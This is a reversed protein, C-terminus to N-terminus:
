RTAESDWAAATLGRERVKAKEVRESPTKPLQDVVEIFRPVAFRPLSARLFEHLELPALVSRPRPVVLLAVDEEGLPSAVGFAAAELVDAHRTAAQEVEWASVNEGRRRIADKKRGVFEYDGNDAQRVLDGTRLWSGHWAAETAEPKRWYGAMTVHPELPACLLEGTEGSVVDEGGDDVVKVDFCPTARGISGPRAGHELTWTVCGTETQGYWQHVELGFRQEFSRHIEPPVASSALLRAPQTVDDPSPEQKYLLWMMTGICGLVAAGHRRVDDWFRRVSFREAIVAKARAALAIAVFTRADQHYLPQACYVVERPAVRLGNKLLEGQNPWHGQVVMVGKSPGTTGSTYLISAVDAAAPVFDVPAVTGALEAFSLHRTAPGFPEGDGDLVVAIEPAIGAQALTELHRPPGVIVRPDADGVLYALFHGRAQVNLPVDIAGVANAGLWTWVCEPRNDSMLAVRDGRAVGLSRLGAAVAATRDLAQGFTFEYGGVHLFGADPVDAAAQRLAAITSASPM